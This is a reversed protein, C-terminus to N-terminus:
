RWPGDGPVRKLGGSSRCAFVVVLGMVCWLVGHYVREEDEVALALWAEGFEVGLEHAVGGRCAM